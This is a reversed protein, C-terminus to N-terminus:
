ILSILVVVTGLIFCYYSFNHFRGDKLLKILLKLSLYGVVMAVLTGIIYEITIPFSQMLKLENYLEYVNAGLIPLIAIMFSFSAAKGREIGRFLAASITSGSRSIGPLISFAQFIGIFISDNIKIEKDRPRFYKTSYLLIGNIILLFGIIRIDLFVSKIFNNFFYGVLCVPISALIIKLIQEKSKLAKSIEKRFFALIVVLTGFHLMVDFFVPVTLGLFHQFMSLHASSSIPLWETVGQVFGLFIAALFDM